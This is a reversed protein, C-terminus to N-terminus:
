HNFLDINEAALSSNTYKHVCHNNSDTVFVNGMNDVVIDRPVNLQGNGTGHEGFKLIFNGDSTFKQIRHNMQDAIYLFGNRDIVIGMPHDFEGEKNGEKGWSDLFKGYSDFKQVCHSTENTVFLNEFPDIAIGHPSSLQGPSSGREGWGLIFNGQHDFKQITSNNSDSIYLYIHNDKSEYVAVAYPCSFQGIGNGHEGFKNSFIGNINFMQVCDNMEAAVYIMGRSDIDIGEPYYFQGIGTGHEGFKLLPTYQFSGGGIPKYNEIFISRIERLWSDCKFHLQKLLSDSAQRIIGENPLFLIQPFGSGVGVSSNLEFTEIYKIMRYGLEAAHIMRANEKLLQNLFFMGYPEGLGIAKFVTVKESIGSPYFYHLETDKISKIGFLIDFEEYHLPYKYQENVKKILEEIKQVLTLTSSLKFDNLLSNEELLAKFKEFSSVPGSYGIVISDGIKFVKNQYQSKGGEYIVKKDAVLVIGDICKAGLVFTM